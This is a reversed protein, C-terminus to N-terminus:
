EGGVPRHQGCGACFNWDRGLIRGCRGCRVRAEDKGEESGSLEFAIDRGIQRLRKDVRRKADLLDDSKVVWYEKYRKGGAGVMPRRGRYQSSVHAVQNEGEGGHGGVGGSDLKLCADFLETYRQLFDKPLYYLVELSARAHPVGAASAIEAIRRTVAEDLQERYRRNEHGGDDQRGM